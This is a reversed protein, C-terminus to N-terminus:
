FNEKTETMNQKHEEKKNQQESTHRNKREGKWAEPLEVHHLRQVRQVSTVNPVQILPTLFHAGTLNFPEWHFNM